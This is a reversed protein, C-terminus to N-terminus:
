PVQSQVWSRAGPLYDSFWGLEIGLGLCRNWELSQKVAPSGKGTPQRTSLWVVRNHRCNWMPLNNRGGPKNGQKNEQRGLWRSRLILGGFFFSKRSGLVHYVFAMLLFAGPSGLPDWLQWQAKSLPTTEMLAARAYYFSPKLAVSNPVQSASKLLIYTSLRQILGEEKFNFIM